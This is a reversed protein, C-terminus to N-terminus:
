SSDYRVRVCRGFFFFVPRSNILIQSYPGNLGNMRLQTFGCNQCNNEVRLGPSFSLGESLSLSQTAEFTRKNITNVIVPSNYVPVKSRTGTVVVGDLNLVDPELNAEINEFSSAITARWIRYGTFSIELVIPSTNNSPLKLEFGGNQMTITSLQLAPIRVTAGEVPQNQILVRGKVAISQGFL